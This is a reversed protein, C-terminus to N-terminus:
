PFYRLINGYKDVGMVVTFVYLSKVMSIGGPFFVSFIRFLFFDEFIEGDNKCRSFFM